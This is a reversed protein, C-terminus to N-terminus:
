LLNLTVQIQIEYWKSKAFTGKYCGNEVVQLRIVGCRGSVIAKGGGAFHNILMVQHSRRYKLVM